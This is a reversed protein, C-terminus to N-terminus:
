KGHLREFAMEEAVVTTTKGSKESRDLMALVIAYIEDVKQDVRSLDQYAYTMAANILGGSNILFDPLYLINRAQLMLANRHHALQNNATGAIIKAHTEDIFEQKITGGM